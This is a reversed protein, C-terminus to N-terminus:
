SVVWTIPPLAVSIFFVTKMALNYEEVVKSWSYLINHTKINHVLLLYKLFIYYLTIRKLQTSHLALNAVKLLTFSNLQKIKIM